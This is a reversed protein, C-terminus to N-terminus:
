LAHVYLQFGYTSLALEVQQPDSAASKVQSRPAFLHGTLQAREADCGCCTAAMWRLASLARGLQPVATAYDMGAKIEGVDAAFVAGGEKFERRGQVDLEFLEGPLDDDGTAAAAPRSAALLCAVGPGDRSLLHIAQEEASKGVTRRLKRALTALAADGSASLCTEMAALRVNGDASLWPGAEECRAAAEAGREEARRFAARECLQLLKRPVGTGVLVRSAQKAADM